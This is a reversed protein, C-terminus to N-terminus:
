HGNSPPSGLAVYWALLGSICFTDRIHQWVPVQSMGVATIFVCVWVRVCRPIRVVHPAVSGVPVCSHLVSDFVARLNDFQRGCSRARLTHHTVGWPM